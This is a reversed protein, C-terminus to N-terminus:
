PKYSSAWKMLILVLKIYRKLDLEKMINVLITTYGFVYMVKYNLTYTITFLHEKDITVKISYLVM